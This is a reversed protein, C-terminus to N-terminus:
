TKFHHNIIAIPVQQVDSRFTDLLENSHRVFSAMVAFLQAYLAQGLVQLVISLACEWNTSPVYDGDSCHYLLPRYTSPHCVFRM